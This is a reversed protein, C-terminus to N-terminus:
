PKTTLDGPLSAIYAAMDELEARSFKAMQGVMIPHDRGVLRREKAQYALMAHFLYDSYQGALKPYEPAIPSNLNAGHCSVCNNLEVLRKGKGQDAALLACSFMLLTMSLLFNKIM